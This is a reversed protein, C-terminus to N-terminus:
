EVFDSLNYTYLIQREAFWGYLINNTCDLYIKAIPEDLKVNSIFKGDWNFVHIYNYGIDDSANQWPQGSWLAYIGEDSAKVQRYCFMANSMNTNFISYNQTGELIHGSIQMSELNVINIQPLWNMAEVFKSKDPKLSFAADFFDEPLIQTEKSNISEKFVNVESLLHNTSYTRIQYSAKTIEDTLHIHVSPQCVLISDNGIWVQKGYAVPTENKWSYDVVNEYVTKNNRISASINWILMKNENPAFLITKHDGKEVYIQLDPSLAVFEEHGHGIPCFSGIEKSTKNNFITFANGTRVENFFVVITDFAAFNTSYAGDIQTSDHAHVNREPVLPREYLKGNFNDDRTCCCFSASVSLILLLYKNICYSKM